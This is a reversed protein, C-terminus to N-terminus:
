RIRYSLTVGIQYDSVTKYPFIKPDPIICGIPTKKIYPPLTEFHGEDLLTDPHKNEYAKTVPVKFHFRLGLDGYNFGVGCQWMLRVPYAHVLYKDTWMSQKLGYLRTKWCPGTFVEFRRYAYSINTQLEMQLQDRYKMTYFAHDNKDQAKVRYSFLAQPNFNLGNWLYLRYGAGISAERFNTESFKWVGSDDGPFVNPRNLSFDFGAFINWGELPKDAKPTNQASVQITTALAMVCLTLITLLNKM